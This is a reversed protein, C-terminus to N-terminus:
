QIFDEAMVPGVAQEGFRKAIDIQLDPTASPTIRDVMSCPFTVNKYVWRALCQCGMLDLYANFNCQLMKGNQRINDCCLVTLPHSTGAQRYALARMLYAYVSQNPGRGEQEAIIVPDTANLLGAQGLYYGSETVTITLMHVDPSALLAEAKAPTKSWDYFGMHARVQTFESEGSTTMAKIVHGPQKATNEPTIQATNQAFQDAEAARLNVAAIGWRLDNTAQM